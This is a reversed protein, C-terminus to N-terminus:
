KASMIGGVAYVEQNPIVVVQDFRGWALFVQSSDFPRMLAQDLYYITPQSPYKFLTGAPRRYQTTSEIQSVQADSFSKIMSFKYGLSLFETASHFAYKKQDIMVYVVPSEGKIVQGSPPLNYIIRASAQPAIPPAAPVAPASVVPIAPASVAPTLAGLAHYQGKSTYNGSGFDVFVEEASAPFYNGPHQSYKAAPGGILVNREFISNPFYHNLVVSGIGDNDGKVGYDNHFVVNDTFVFNSKPVFRGNKHEGANIVSGTHIATNHSIQVNHPGEEPSTISFLWGNGNGWKPGNIDTLVNNAIRIRNTVGSLHNNDEGLIQVGAAAHRVTNNQFNVDAVVCWNCGGDQNRPTFLVAYGSQGDVWTNEFTNGDVLVRQANKLQFLNKVTWRPSNSQWNAPKSVFNNRIEIDSPILGAIKPDDGGFLINEGSAELYNNSLKYPGPGNFGAVAQADQGTVHVDSIYSDIIATFSSNLAVGRKLASGSDGHIFMRDLIINHPVLSLSNQASSNEGLRVLEYSVASASAKAVEIGILRYHHAGPATQIASVGSGPAVIKAMLNAQAPSVRQGPPLENSRSSRIIIFGNNDKKPLTIPGTFTQGATLVIEDGGSAIALAQTLEATNNVAFSQGTVALMSTDLYIRPWEPDQVAAQTLNAPYVVSWVFFAALGVLSVTRLQKM